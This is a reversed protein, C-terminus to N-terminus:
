NYWRAGHARLLRPMDSGSHKRTAEGLATIPVRYVYHGGNMKEREYEDESLSEPNINHSADVRIGPQELLLRVMDLNGTEAAVVLPVLTEGGETDVNAGRELLLRVMEIDNAIAVILPCSYRTFDIGFERNRDAYEKRANVDAGRDILLRVLDINQSGIAKDLPTSYSYFWEIWMRHVENITNKLNVNVEAGLDLLLCTMDINKTKIAMTLPTDEIDYYKADGDLFLHAGEINKTLIATTLPYTNEVNYYRITNITIANVNAGHDLLYRVKNIDNAKVAEFLAADSVPTGMLRIADQLDSASVTGYSVVPMLFTGLLLSIGLKSKEM